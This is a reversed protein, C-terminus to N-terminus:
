RRRLEARAERLVSLDVLRDLPSETAIGSEQKIKDVISKLVPEEIDGDSNVVQRLIKYTDAAIKPELGFDKQLYSIVEAENRAIIDMSRLTGRIMSKVQERREQIHPLRAVLGGQLDRVDFTNGLDAYGALTAMSTYPPTLIAADAAKGLLATYSNGTTNTSIYAVKENGLRKMVTIAAYHALSGIGSVAVNKIKAPAMGPQAVLSFSLRTQIFTVTRLPVGKMAARIGLGGAASYDLDGAVLATVGLPPRMIIIELDIGEKEFLRQSKGFYYPLFTLSKAPVTLRVKELPKKGEQQAHVLSWTGGILSVLLVVAIPLSKMKMSKEKRVKHGKHEKHHFNEEGM